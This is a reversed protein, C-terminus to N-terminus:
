QLENKNSANSLKYLVYTNNYTTHQIRTIFKNYTHRKLTGLKINQGNTMEKRKKEIENAHKSYSYVM